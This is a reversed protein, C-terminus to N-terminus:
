DAGIRFLAGNEIAGETELKRSIRSMNSGPEVRVCIPAELPGATTYSQQGWLIVGGALFVLVVLFTLANSALAKWM